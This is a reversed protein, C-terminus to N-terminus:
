GEGCLLATSITLHPTIEWQWVCWGPSLTDLPPAMKREKRLPERQVGPRSGTGLGPTHLGIVQEGRHLPKWQKSQRM